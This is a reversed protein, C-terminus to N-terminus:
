VGWPIVGTLAQFEGPHLVLVPHHLQPRPYLTALLMALM